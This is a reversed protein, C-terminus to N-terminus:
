GQLYGTCQRRVPIIKRDAKGCVYVTINYCWDGRKYFTELTKGKNGAKERQKSKMTCIVCHM